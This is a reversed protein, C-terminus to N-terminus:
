LSILKEYCPFSLTRGPFNVEGRKVYGRKEYFRLSDKNGSYADLRISTYSNAAAYAEAFNMLMAAFGQRQYQPAVALRHIVLCKGKKDQWDLTSYEDDQLENVAVVGLVKGDDHILSYLNGSRIDQAIHELKPYNDTWQFINRSELSTRCDKFITFIIELQEVTSKVITM